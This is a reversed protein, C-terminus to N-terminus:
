RNLRKIEETHTMITVEAIAVPMDDHSVRYNWNGNRLMISNGEHDAEEITNFLHAEYDNPTSHVEIETHDVQEFYLYQQNENMLAFGKKVM